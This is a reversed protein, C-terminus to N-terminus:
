TAVTPVPEPPEAVGLALAQYLAGVAAATLENLRGSPTVVSRRLQIRACASGPAFARGPAPALVLLEDPQGLEDVRLAPRVLELRAPDAMQRYVGTELAPGTRCPGPQLNQLIVQAGDLRGLHHDLPAQDADPDLFALLHRALLPLRGALLELQTFLAISAVLRPNVEIVVCRGDEALVLDLGFIGRYGEAALAGGVTEALTVYAAPDLHRAPAALWDNGCSGLPYRTLVAAGTVQVCPAGVAVGRATVCANLTLPTGPVFASARAQPVAGLARVARRFSAADRVDFTRAGSYGHPAQLVFRRGLRTAVPGYASAAPEVVAHPPIPLGLDEALRAFALKNEWRRALAAPAALLRWGHEACIAELAHSSKFVWLCAGPPLFAATRPHALLAPTAYQPREEAGLEEGLAFTPVGHARLTAVAPTPEVCAIRYAPLLTELGIGYHPDPGAFVLDLARAAAWRTFDAPTQVSIV